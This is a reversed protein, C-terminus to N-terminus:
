RADSGRWGLSVGRPPGIGGLGCWPAEEVLQIAGAALYEGAQRVAAAVARRRDDVVEREDLAIRNARFRRGSGVCFHDCM